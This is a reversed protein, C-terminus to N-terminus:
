IRELLMVEALDAWVQDVTESGQGLAITTDAESTLAVKECGWISGAGWQHGRSPHTYDRAILLRDLDTAAASHAATPNVMRHNPEDGSGWITPKGRTM